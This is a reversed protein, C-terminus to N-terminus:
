GGSVGAQRANVARASRQRGASANHAMMASAFANRHTKTGGERVVTACQMQRAARVRPMRVSRKFSVRVGKVAHAAQNGTSALLVNEAAALERWAVRFFTIRGAAAGNPMAPRERVCVEVKAGM